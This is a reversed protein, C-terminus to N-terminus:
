FEVDWNTFYKALCWSRNTIHFSIYRIHTAFFKITQINSTQLCTWPPRVAFCGQAASIAQNPHPFVRPRHAHAAPTGQPLEGHDSPLPGTRPDALPLRKSDQSRTWQDPFIVRYSSSVCLLYKSPSQLLTYFVVNEQGFQFNFSVNVLRVWVCVCVSKSM